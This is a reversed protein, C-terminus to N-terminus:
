RPRRPEPQARYRGSRQSGGQREGGAFVHGGVHLGAQDAYNVSGVDCRGDVHVHFAIQQCRVDALAGDSGVASERGVDGRGNVDGGGCAADRNHIGAAGKQGAMLVGYKEGVIAGRGVPVQHSDEFILLNNCRLAM